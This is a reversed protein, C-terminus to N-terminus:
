YEGGVKRNNLAKGSSSPLKVPPIDIPISEDLSRIFFILQEKEVKTLKLSDSSLTQNPVDLKRGAGGGGDYFDIVEELSKFVGNHMYPKTRSANRLTTTRFARFMEPASHVNFRGSDKSLHLFSADGPVGLVEFESGIYPPKVGNFQPVFHCTGCQAKGMFLNFGKQVAVPITRKANMAEDFPAINKGFGGYYLTIASIIHQLGIKKEEPTVKLYKRFANKYDPCSLVKELLEKENGSMEGPNMIVEKGQAQLSIHKGDIMLLHNFSSNVLSPSNRALHGKQDFAISTRLITDTFFTQPNHCSACSRKNNGSLIPDFFLLKGTQRIEELMKEDEVLSYIGKINQGEFLDKDFIASVDNNLSYDVYSDSVVGYARIFHQNMGFLPNIFDRIFVYHDFLTYKAPQDNVFHLTKEFLDLYPATLTSGPFSQNYNAYISRVQNLMYRLEPIVNSTDPCEFGTTYIAALNLLFLRNALFFHHYTSLDSTISDERFTATAAIAAEVLYLLSDKDVTEEELYLEALTLGAGERRYPTEFKEFVETEWEVPLPGNIKKYAVPELYRLWFDVKKLKMRAQDIAERVKLLDEEKRLNSGAIISALDSQQRILENIGSDYIGAYPKSREMTYALCCLAALLVIVFCKKM